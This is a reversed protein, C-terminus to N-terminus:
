LSRKLIEQHIAWVQPFLMQTDDNNILFDCFIAREDETIQKSIRQKIADESIQERQMIRKIRLQEPATIGIVVNCKKYAGSEILLASEKISYPTKTQALHWKESYDLVAPHVITNLLFTQDQTIFAREALVKNQLKGEWYVDEGFAAKIKNILVPDKQILQKALDDTSLIPIGFSSFLKCITSKGSGIGGTIGVALM